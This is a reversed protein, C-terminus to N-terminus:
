ATFESEYKECTVRQIEHSKVYLEHLSSLNMNECSVLQIEHPLLCCEHLSSLNMNKLSYVKFKIHNCTINM